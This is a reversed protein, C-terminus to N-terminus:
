PLHSDDRRIIFCFLLFINLFSGTGRSIWQVPCSTSCGCPRRDGYGDAMCALQIPNKKHKLCIYLVKKQHSIDKRKYIINKNEGQSRIFTATFALVPWTFSAWLHFIVLLHSKFLNWLEHTEWIYFGLSNAWNLNIVFDGGCFFGKFWTCINEKSPLKPYSLYKSICISHM